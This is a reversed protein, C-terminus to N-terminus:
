WGSAAKWHLARKEDALRILEDALANAAAYEACLFYTQLVHGLAFMLTGAQGFNHADKIAHGAESLAADPYGLLWISYARLHPYFVWVVKKPNLGQLCAPGGAHNQTGGM